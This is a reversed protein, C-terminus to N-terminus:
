TPIARKAMIKPLDEAIDDITDLIFEPLSDKADSIVTEVKKVILKGILYGPISVCLLAIVATLLIDYLVM